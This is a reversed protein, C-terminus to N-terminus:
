RLLDGYIENQANLARAVIHADHKTACECVRDYGHNPIPARYLTDGHINLLPRTSDIVTAEFCCGHESLSEEVVRFRDTTTMTDNYVRKFAEYVTKITNPWPYHDRRYVTRRHLLTYFHL